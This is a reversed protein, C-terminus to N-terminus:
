TYILSLINVHPLVMAVTTLFSKVYVLLVNQYFYLLLLPDIVLTEIKSEIGTM